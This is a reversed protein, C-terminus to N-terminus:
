YQLYKRDAIAISPICLLLFPKLHFENVIRTEPNMLTEVSLQELPVNLFPHRLDM